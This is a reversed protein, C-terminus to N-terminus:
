CNRIPRKGTDDVDHIPGAHRHSFGPYEETELNGARDTEHLARALTSQNVEEIEVGVERLKGIIRNCHEPNCDKIELEGKTIAGPSSSHEPKL